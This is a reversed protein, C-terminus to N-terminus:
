SSHTRPFMGYFVFGMMIGTLHALHNINSGSDYLQSISGALSQLLFIFLFTGTTVSATSVGDDLLSWSRRGSPWFRSINLRHKPFALAYYMLVASVGGSAGLSLIPKGGSRSALWMTAIHGVVGGLFFLGFFHSSGLEEEVDSGGLWLFYMNGLCHQWGVHLFLSTLWTMGNRRFPEHANFVLNSWSIPDKILAATMTISLLTIVVTVVPLEKVRKQGADRTPLGLYHLDHFDGDDIFSKEDSPFRLEPTAPPQYTSKFQTPVQPFHPELEGKEHIQELEGIDFWISNCYECHDLERFVPAGVALTPMPKFCNPCKLSNGSEVPSPADTAKIIADM